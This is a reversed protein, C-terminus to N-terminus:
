LGARRLVEAATVELAAALKVITELSVNFEGREIAGVYSRDLGAHAAFREQGFGREARLARVAAGFALTVPTKKSAM